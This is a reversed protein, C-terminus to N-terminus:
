KLWKTVMEFNLETRTESVILTLLINWIWSILVDAPLLTAIEIPEWEARSNKGVVKAEIYEDGLESADQSLKM